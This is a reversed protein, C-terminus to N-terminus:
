INYGYICLRSFEFSNSLRLGTCSVTTNNYAYHRAHQTTSSIGSPSGIAFSETSKPLSQFPNYVDFTMVNAGGTTSSLVTILFGTTNQVGAGIISTDSPRTFIGSRNWNTFLNTSLLQGIVSLNNVFPRAGSIIVRYANFEASFCGGIDIDFGSGVGNGRSDFTVGSHPGTPIIKKMGGHVDFMSEIGTALAQIDAAGDAVNDSFEPYALSYIPTNGM